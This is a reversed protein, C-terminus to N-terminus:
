AAAVIAAAKEGSHAPVRVLLVPVPSHRVVYEADSGMLLRRLGRRGHTGCIILEAQYAGAQRVICEGVQVDPTEVLVTDAAIGALRVLEAAEKLYREGETRMAEFLVGYSAATAESTMLSWVDVVNLLRLSSNLPRALKIAENLAQKSPESGDIPVLIRSYM